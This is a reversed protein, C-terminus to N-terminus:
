DVFGGSVMATPVCVAFVNVTITSSGTNVFGAIWEAGNPMTAMTHMNAVDPGTGYIQYGGSIASLNAPCTARLFASGPAVNSTLSTIQFSFSTGAGAPGQIGQPGMPGMPGPMGMGMPGMMGPMGQPGTAGPLGPEGADGKDGKVGQIGQIGQLGQLGQVGADGKAGTLGVDGKAGAVGADGKAGQIGADGKVGQIGADGKDGKVGAVGPLGQVGQLGQIGQANLTLLTHSEQLCRVPTGAIGIRYVTGSGPVVCLSIQPEPSGVSKSVPATQAVASGASFAAVAAVLSYRVFSM